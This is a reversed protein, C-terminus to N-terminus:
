FDYRFLSTTRLLIRVQFFTKRRTKTSRVITTLDAQRQVTDQTAFDLISKNRERWFPRRVQPNQFFTLRGCCVQIRVFSCVSSPLFTRSKSQSIDLVPWSVALAFRVPLDAVASQFERSKEAQKAESMTEESALCLPFAQAPDEDQHSELNKGAM